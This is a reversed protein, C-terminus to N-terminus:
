KSEKVTIRLKGMEERYEQRDFGNNLITDFMVKGILDWRELAKEKNDAFAVFNYAVASYVANKFMENELILRAMYRTLIAGNDTLEVNICEGIVVSKFGSAELADLLPNIVSNDAIESREIKLVNKM